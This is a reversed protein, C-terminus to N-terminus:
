NAEAYVFLLNDTVLKLESLLKGINQSFARTTMMILTFFHQWKYSNTFSARYMWLTEVSISSQFDRTALCVVTILLCDESVKARWHCTGETTCSLMQECKKVKSSSRLM